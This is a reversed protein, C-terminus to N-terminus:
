IMWGFWETKRKDLGQLWDVTARIAQAAHGKTSFTHDAGTIIDKECQGESRTRFVKQYLFSAFLRNEGIRDGVFGHCIVVAPFRATDRGGDMPPEHLTAALRRGTARLEIQREM